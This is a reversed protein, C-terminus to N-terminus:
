QSQLASTRHHHPNPASHERCAATKGRKVPVQTIPFTEGRGEPRAGTIAVSCSSRPQMTSVEQVHPEVSGQHGCVVASTTLSILSLLLDAGGSHGRVRGVWGGRDSDRDSSEATWSRLNSCYRTDSHPSGDSSRDTCRRSSCSLSSVDSM